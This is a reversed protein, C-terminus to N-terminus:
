NNKVEVNHDISLFVVKGSEVERVKTNRSFYWNWYDSPLIEFEKNDIWFHEGMELHALPKRM